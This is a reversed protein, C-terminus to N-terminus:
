GVSNVQQNQGEKEPATFKGTEFLFAEVFIRRGQVAHLREATKCGNSYNKVVNRLFISKLPCTAAIALRAFQGNKHVRAKEKNRNEKEAGAIAKDFTQFCLRIVELAKHFLTYELSEYNRVIDANQKVAKGAKGRAFSKRGSLPNCVEQAKRHHVFIGPIRNNSSNEVCGKIQNELVDFVSFNTVQKHGKDNNQQTHNETYVTM